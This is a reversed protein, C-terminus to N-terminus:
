RGDSWGAPLRSIARANPSDPMVLDISLPQELVHGVLPQDVAGRAAREVLRAPHGLHRHQADDTSSLPLDPWARAAPVGVRRRRPQPHDLAPPARRQASPSRM